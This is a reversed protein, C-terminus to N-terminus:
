TRLPQQPQNQQKKAKHADYIAVIQSDFMSVYVCLLFVIEELGCNNSAFLSVAVCSFAVVGLQYGVHNM